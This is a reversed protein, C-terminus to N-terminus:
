IKPLWGRRCVFVVMLVDALAIPLFEWGKVVAILVITLLIGIVLLACGLVRWYKSLKKTIAILIVAGLLSTLGIFLLTLFLSKDM